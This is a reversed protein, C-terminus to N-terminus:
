GDDDKAQRLVRAIAEARSHIGLKRYVASNTNRVTKPSAGLAEAIRRDPWGAAVHQLVDVERPTLGHREGFAALEVITAAAPLYGTVTRRAFEDAAGTIDSWVVPSDAVIAHYRERGLRAEVAALFSTFGTVYDAPLLGRARALYPRVSGGLRAADHLEDIVAACVALGMVAYLQGDWYGIRRSIRLCEQYTRVGDAPQNADLQASGLAALSLVTERLEGAQRHTAPLPALRRVVEAPSLDATALQVRMLACRAVRSPNQLRRSLDEAVQVCEKAQKIRGSQQHARALAFALEAAWGIRDRERAVDLAAACVGASEDFHTAVLLAYAFYTAIQLYEDTAEEDPLHNPLVSWHADRLRDLQDTRGLHIRLRATLADAVVAIRGSGEPLAPRAREVLDLASWGRHRSLWFPALHTLARLTLEADRTSLEGLAAIFNTEEADVERLAEGGGPEAYRRGIDIARQAYRRAHHEVLADQRRRVSPEASADRLRVTDRVTEHMRFRRSGQALSVEVLSGSVLQALVGALAHRTRASEVLEDGAADIVEEISRMTTWGTFASLVSLVDRAPAGLEDLSWEIVERVSQAGDAAPVPQDLIFGPGSRRLRGLLQAPTLVLLMGAAVSLALPNGGLRRAIEALVHDGTDRLCEDDALERLLETARGGPEGELGALTIVTEGGLGLPRRTTLIVVVDTLAALLDLLDERLEVLDEVADLVVIRRQAPSPSAAGATVGDSPRTPGIALVDLVRARATRVDLHGLRVLTHPQTGFSARAEALVARALTTKGMGGAGAIVICREGRGIADLIRRLEDARIVREM